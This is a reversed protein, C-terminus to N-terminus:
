PAPRLLAQVSALSPRPTVPLMVAVRLDTDPGPPAPGSPKRAKLVVLMSNYVSRHLGSGAGAGLRGLTMLQAQYAGREDPGNRVHWAEHMIISALKVFPLSDADWHEKRTAAEFVATRTLLYIRKTGPRTFGEATPSADAPRVDVLEIPPLNRAEGGLLTLVCVLVESPSM